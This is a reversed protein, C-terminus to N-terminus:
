KELIYLIINCLIYVYRATDDCFTVPLTKTMNKTMPNLLKIELVTLSPGM